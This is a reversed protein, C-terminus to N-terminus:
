EPKDGKYFLPVLITFLVLAITTFFEKESALFKAQTSLGVASLVWTLGFIGDMMNAWIFFALAAIIVAGRQPNNNEDATAFRRVIVTVVLLLWSVLKEAWLGRGSALASLIPYASISEAPVLKVLREMYGKVTDRKKPPADTAASQVIRLSM